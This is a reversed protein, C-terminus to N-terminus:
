ASSRQQLLRRAARQGSRVAGEVTPAVLYDGALTIGAPLWAGDFRRLRRLYGPSFVTCGDEFRQVHAATVHRAVGRVAEEVSALVAGAADDDGREWLDPVASPAALAVLADGGPPVLGALKRSQICLAALLRGPKTTRPFSLGFYDGPFPRDTRYAVTLTSRERVADLWARLEGRADLLAAARNAAVAIVAGDYGTRAGGVEVVVAGDDAHVREVRTAPLFQVGRRELTTLIADVLTGFGGACGYLSVDMGVRALAHYVAASTEEPAAGYYAALLPYVLLEVFPAGMEREGWAGISEADFATGGSEAPDNADLGRAQATLYPVYKAALRLKLALPLASSLAMSAVSGYAIPHARGRRWLADRGASRRLLAAAGAERALEFITRYTSSLLQVGVDVRAGDLTETRLVGGPRRAMDYLTVREGAASLSWAAALGAAGAGVVAIVGSWFGRGPSSADSIASQSV